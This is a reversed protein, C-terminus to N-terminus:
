REWRKLADVATLEPVVTHGHKGTTAHAILRVSAWMVLWHPLKWAVAMQAREVRKGLEYRLDYRLDYRLKDRLWGRLMM